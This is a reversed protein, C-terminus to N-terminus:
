TSPGPVLLSYSLCPGQGQRTLLFFLFLKVSLNVNLSNASVVTRLSGQHNLQLSGVSWYLLHLNSGQTLFIGQLPFHCGVGTNEGPFGWPCLLRAPEMPDCLTSCSQAVLVKVSEYWFLEWNHFYTTYVSEAWPSDEMSLQRYVLLLIRVAWYSYYAHQQETGLDHGGKWSCMFQLM